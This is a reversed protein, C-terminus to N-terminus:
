DKLLKTVCKVRKPQNCLQEFINEFGIMYKITQELGYQDFSYDYISILDNDAEQSLEYYLRIKKNLPENLLEM